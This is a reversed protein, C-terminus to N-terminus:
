VNKSKLLVRSSLNKIQMMKNKKKMRKEKKLSMLIKNLINKSIKQYNGKIKFRKRNKRKNISLKSNGTLRLM